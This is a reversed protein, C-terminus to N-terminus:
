VHAQFEECQKKLSAGDLDDFEECLEKITKEIHMPYGKEKIVYSHIRFAETSNCFASLTVDIKQINVSYGRMFKMCYIMECFAKQTRKHIEDLLYKKLINGGEDKRYGFETLMDDPYLCFEMKIRQNQRDVKVTELCKAFRHYIQSEEPIQGNQLGFEDARSHEDALEDALRLIAALLQPRVQKGMLDQTGESIITGITDKDGDVTGGHSSAIKAIQRQESAKLKNFDAIKGVIDLIRSEHGERGYINGVDHCHISILLLFGEYPTLNTSFGSNSSTNILASARRMVMEIHKPGHDTLFGGKNRIAAYAAVNNHVKTNLEHEINLFIADYQVSGHNPFDEPNKRFSNIVWSAFHNSHPAKM